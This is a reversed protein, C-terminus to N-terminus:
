NEIQERLVGVVEERDIIEAKAMLIERQLRAVTQRRAEIGLELMRITRELSERKQCDTAM